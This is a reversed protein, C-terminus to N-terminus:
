IQTLLSTGKSILIISIKNGLWKSFALLYNHANSSWKVYFISIWKRRKFAYTIVKLSYIHLSPIATKRIGCRYQQYDSHLQQLTYIIKRRYKYQNDRQIEHKGGGDTEGKRERLCVKEQTWIKHMFRYLDKECQVISKFLIYILFFFEFAKDTASGSVPLHWSTISITRTSIINYNTILTTFETWLNLLHFVIHRTYFIMCLYNTTKQGWIKHICHRILFKYM